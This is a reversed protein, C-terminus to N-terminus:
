LSSQSPPTVLTEEAVTSCRARVTGPCRRTDESFVGRLRRSPDERRDTPGCRQDRAKRRRAETHSANSRRTESREQVGSLDGSMTRLLAASGADVEGHREEGNGSQRRQFVRSDRQHRSLVVSSTSRFRRARGHRLSGSRDAFTLPDASSRRLPRGVIKGDVRIDAVYTDFITADHTPIFRDDKFAFLLCTKGCMGDGVIVLKKNKRITGNKGSAMRSSSFTSRKSEDDVVVVGLPSDFFRISTRETRRSRISHLAKREWALSFRTECDFVDAAILSFLFLLM